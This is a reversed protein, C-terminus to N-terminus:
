FNSRLGERVADSRSIGIDKLQDDTMELLALRSRRRAAMAELRDVVAFILALLSLRQPGKRGHHARPAMPGAADLTRTATHIATMTGM